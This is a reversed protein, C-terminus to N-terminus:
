EREVKNRVCGNKGGALQDLAEQCGQMLTEIELFTEREKMKQKM